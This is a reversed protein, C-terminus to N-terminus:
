RSGRPRGWLAVRGAGSGGARRIVQKESSAPRHAEPGPRRVRKSLFPAPHRKHFDTADQYAKAVALVAAEGYLRGMFSISMPRGKDNFGNPFVVCPHGTLNTLLLNDSGSPALYVVDPKEMAQVLM